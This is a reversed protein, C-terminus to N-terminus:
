VPDQLFLIRSEDKVAAADLHFLVEFLSFATPPLVTSFDEVVEVDALFIHQFDSFFSFYFLLLGRRFRQLLVQAESQARRGM